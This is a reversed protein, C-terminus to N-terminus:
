AKRESGRGTPPKEKSRTEALRSIGTSPHDRFSTSFHHSWRPGSFLRVLRANYRRRCCAVFVVGGVSRSDRKDHQLGRRISPFGHSFFVFLFRILNLSTFQADKEYRECCARERARHVEQPFSISSVAFHAGHEADVSLRDRTAKATMGNVNVRV